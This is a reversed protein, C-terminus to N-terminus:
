AVAVAAAREWQRGLAIHYDRDVEALFALAKTDYAAIDVASREVRVVYLRNEPDIFRDDWSVFDWWEAGTIWLNHVIQPLYEEPVGGQLYELHTDPNPCKLEIGGVIRGVIGDPSCGAMISDHSIFGVLDVLVGTRAEYAALAYPERDIGRQLAQPKHPVADFAYDTTLREAVMRRRLDAREKLEGTGRKRDRTAHYAQSGTFLGRRLQVWAESRQDVDHITYSV